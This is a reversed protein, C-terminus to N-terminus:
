RGEQIFGAAREGIMVATANTNARVINPFISADAVRLGDLGRVNCYQDAVAMPGADSGMKCTGSIHQFSSVNAMLWADLTDDSALDRDTPSLRELLIDRYAPHELLQIALRMGDRMRQLDWPEELYHYDIQPQINPDKSVLTLEGSGVPLQLGCGVHTGPTEGILTTSCSSPLIMMDNRTTSGEATYRLSVQEWPENPDIPYDTPVRYDAIALPHDRLNQGVGPSDMILQVGTADLQGAPGVGSLMLLHPSGIAGASLIIEEGEVVFTQGGSAVEIGTARKNDFVIRNAMVDARVTLNLRHRIPNIYTLATSMRIGDPNNMPVPGVGTSDPNNQDWSEPFGTAVCADVFAKQDRNWNEHKHRRVPIPGDAGHFDDRADLDTESRRFYTLLNIFSWEDNGLTAWADYDEPIGRLFAQVNIASSGGMVKGRPVPIQRPPRSTAMGRFSWNHPADEAAAVPHNYGYKLDTPLREFDPYDPGAEILLVSKGSDESLRAALVCGASGAGVIIHNYTM